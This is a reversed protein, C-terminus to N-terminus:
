KVHVTLTPRLPGDTIVYSKVQGSGFDSNLRAVNKGFPTTQLNDFVEKEAGTSQPTVTITDSSQKNLSKYAAAIVANTAKEVVVEFRVIALDSPQKGGKKVFLSMEIDSLFLKNATKDNANEANM